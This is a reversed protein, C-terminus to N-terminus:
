ESLQGICHDIDRILANIKLKTERKNEDSGLMSNAMKLTEYKEVWDAIAEQQELLKQQQQELQDSLKANTQKLVQQKHLIKSIKNELADVIDEIKSM